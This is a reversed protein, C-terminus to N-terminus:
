ATSTTKPACFITDASFPGNADIGQAKAKEIAPAISEREEQGFFGRAAIPNLASVAILPRVHGYSRMASDILVIAEYM